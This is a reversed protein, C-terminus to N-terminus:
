FGKFIVLWLMKRVFFDIIGRMEHTVFIAFDFIGEYPRIAMRGGGVVCFCGFFQWGFIIGLYFFRCNGRREYIVFM